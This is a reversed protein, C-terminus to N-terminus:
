RIDIDGMPLMDNILITNEQFLMQRDSFVDVKDKILDLTHNSMILYPLVSEKEGFDTAKQRLYDTDAIYKLINIRM